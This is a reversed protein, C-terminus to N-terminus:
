LKDIRKIQIDQNTCWNDTLPLCNLYKCWECEYIPYIYLVVLLSIIIVLVFGFASAIVLMKKTRKYDKLLLYPLLAFSLALGTIFGGIHAYNDVWPLLGLAFLLLAFSSFKALQQGPNELLDWHTYLEIFICSLVGFQAGAPGVEGRYPVFNASALNGVLGSILYILMIRVTGFTKELDRMIFFQYVVTCTLHILGAHLFLSTWLRYVQDPSDKSYFGIMGCIDKMCSVQSCLSAEEHFTGKVFDCYEQTAIRCEGYIGICCPRAIIECTM